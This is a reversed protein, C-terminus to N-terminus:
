DGGSGQNPADPAAAGGAGSTAYNNQWEAHASGTGGNAGGISASHVNNPSGGAGFTSPINTM